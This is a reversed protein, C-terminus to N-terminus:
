KYFSVDDIHVDAVCNPSIGAPVVFQWFFGTLRTPDVTTLPAGGIVGPGSFPVKMTTVTSGLGAITEYPPYCSASTGSCAARTDGNMTWADQSFATNYQLSCGTVSGSIAFQVGTFASADLCDPSSYYLTVGLYQPATTPAANTTIHLNGGTTDYAPAAGAPYASVGGGIEIGGNTGSFDAILGDTPAPTSAPCGPAFGDDGTGGTTLALESITFNATCAAGSPAM